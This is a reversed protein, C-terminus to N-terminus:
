LSEVSYEVSITHTKNPSIVVANELANGSEVCIMRKWENADGMDSMEAAKDAWPNWIV